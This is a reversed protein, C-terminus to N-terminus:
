LKGAADIIEDSFYARRDLPREHLASREDMSLKKEKRDGYTPQTRDMNWIKLM